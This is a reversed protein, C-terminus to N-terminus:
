KWILYEIQNAIQASDEELNDLEQFHQRLFDACVKMEDAYQLFGKENPNKIYKYERYYRDLNAFFRYRWGVYELLIDKPIISIEYKLAELCTGKKELVNPCDVENMCAYPLYLTPINYYFIKDKDVAMLGGYLFEEPTDNALTQERSLSVLSFDRGRYNFTSGIIAPYSCRVSELADVEGSGNM